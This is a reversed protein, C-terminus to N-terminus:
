ATKLLKPYLFLAIKQYGQQTDSSRTDGVQTLPTSDM